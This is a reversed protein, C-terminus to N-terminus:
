WEEYGEFIAKGLRRPPVQLGWDYPRYLLWHNWDGRRLWAIRQRIERLNERAQGYMGYDPYRTREGVLGKAQDRVAGEACRAAEQWAAIAEPRRRQITLLAAYRMWAHYAFRNYGTPMKEWGRYLDPRRHTAFTIRGESLRYVDSWWVKYTPTVIIWTDGKEMWIRTTALSNLPPSVEIRPKRADIYLVSNPLCSAASYGPQLFFRGPMWSPAFVDLDRCLRSDTRIPIPEGSPSLSGARERFSRLCVDEFPEDDDESVATNATIAIWEDSSRRVLHEVTNGPYLDNQVLAAIRAFTEAKRRESDPGNGERYEAVAARYRGLRFLCRAAGVHAKREGPYRRAVARYAELAEKAKQGAIECSRGDIPAYLRNAWALAKHPDPAEFMM